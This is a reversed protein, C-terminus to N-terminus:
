MIQRPVDSRDPSQELKRFEVWRKSTDAWIEQQVTFFHNLRERQLDAVPTLVIYYDIEDRLRNLRYQCEEMLIWRSRWNHFGELGGLVTVLAVMPLAIVARNPINSIGLVVTAAATLILVGTKIYSARARFRAKRVDAWDMDASILDRFKLFADRLSVDPERGAVSLFGLDSPLVTRAAKRRSWAM